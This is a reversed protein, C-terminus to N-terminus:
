WLSLLRRRPKGDLLDEVQHLTRDLRCALDDDGAHVAAEMRQALTDIAQEGLANILRTAEARSAFFQYM